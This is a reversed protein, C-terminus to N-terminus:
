AASSGYHSAASFVAYTSAVRSAVYGAASRVATSSVIAYAAALAPGVGGNVDEVESLTLERIM